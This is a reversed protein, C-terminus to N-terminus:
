GELGAATLAQKRGFFMEMRATLGDRLLAVFFVEFDMKIGSNLGRGRQRTVSILVDDSVDIIEVLDLRFEEWQTPWDEWAEMVAARGEYTKSDPVEPPQVIVVDPTVMEGLETFDGREVAEWGRRAQKVNEQSM